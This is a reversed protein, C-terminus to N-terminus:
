FAVELGINGSLRSAELTWSQAASITGDSASSNMLLMIFWAYGVTARASLWPTFGYRAGVDIGALFGFRPGSWTNYGNLQNENIRDALLGGPLIMSMGLRPTGIFAWKAAVPIAMEVRMDLTLLQGLLNNGSYAYNGGYAFAGGIRVNKAVRELFGLHFMAGFTDVEDRNTQVNQGVVEQQSFTGLDQRFGVELFVLHQGAAPGVIGAAAPAAAGDASGGAQTATESAPVEPAPEPELDALDVEEPAPEAKSPSAKSPESKSPSAKSATAKSAAATGAAEASLPAIVITLAFLASFMRKAQAGREGASAGLLAHKEDLRLQMLDIICLV